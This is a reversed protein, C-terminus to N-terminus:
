AGVATHYTQLANYLTLVEDSTLSQGFHGVSVQSARWISTGARSLYHINESVLAVSADSAPLLAVGNKYPTTLVSSSRNSVTHGRSDTIPNLANSAAANVRHVLTDVNSRPVIVAGNTGIAATLTNLNTREWIGLHASDQTFKGGSTAPNFSTNLTSAIGDGTFGRDVTFTPSSVPSLNYTDAIWNQRAAQSDHAAMIHLADLKSWIGATRLSVILDDILSKRTADPQSTFRAFLAIAEASYLGQGLISGGQAYLGIISGGDSVYMSGDPAYHGTLTADTTITINLCGNPGYTGTYGSDVNVFISGDPAYLGRSNVDAITFNLNGNSNYVSM